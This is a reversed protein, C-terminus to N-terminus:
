GIVFPREKTGLVGGALAYGAAPSEAAAHGVEGCGRTAATSQRRPGDAMRRAILLWGDMRRTLMTLRSAM